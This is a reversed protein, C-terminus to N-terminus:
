LLVCEAEGSRLAVVAGRIEVLIPEGFPARGVVRVQAGRIFGLERLRTVIMPDGQLDRILNLSFYPATALTM